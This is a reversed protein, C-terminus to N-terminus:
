YLCAAPHWNSMPAADLCRAASRSVLLAGYQIHSRFIVQANYRIRCAAPYGSNSPSGEGQESRTRGSSQAQRVASIRTSSSRSCHKSITHSMRRCFPPKWLRTYVNYRQRHTVDLLGTYKQRNASTRLREIVCNLVLYGLSFTMVVSSSPQISM